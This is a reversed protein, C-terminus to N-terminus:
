LWFLCSTLNKPTAYAPFQTISPLACSSGQWVQYLESCLQIRIEKKKRRRKKKKEEKLGKAVVQLLHEANEPVRSMERQITVRERKGVPKTLSTRTTQDQPERPLDSKENWDARSQRMKQRCCTKENHVPGFRSKKEIFVHFLLSTPYSQSDGCHHHLQFHWHGKPSLLILYLTPYIHYSNPM